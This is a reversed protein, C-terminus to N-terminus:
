SDKLVKIMTHIDNVVAVQASQITLLWSVKKEIYFVHLEPTIIVVNDPRTHTVSHLSVLPSPKRMEGESAPNASVKARVRGPSSLQINRFRLYTCTM